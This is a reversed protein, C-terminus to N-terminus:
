GAFKWISSNLKWAGVWYFKGGIKGILICVTQAFTQSKWVRPPHSFRWKGIQGCSYALVEQPQQKWISILPTGTILM